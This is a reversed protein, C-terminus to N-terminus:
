WSHGADAKRLQMFRVCHAAENVLTIEPHSVSRVTLGASARRASASTTQRTSPRRVRGEMIASLATAAQLCVCAKTM